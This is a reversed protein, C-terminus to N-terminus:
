KLDQNFFQLWSLLVSHPLDPKEAKSVLYLTHKKGDTVPTLHATLQESKVTKGFGGTVQSGETKFVGVLKGTPDDLRLEFTYPSLYETTWEKGLTAKTISGLDLNEMAIWGNIGSAIAFSKGGIKGTEFGERKNVRSLEVKSNRLVVTNNGSLPKINNGGKDSYSASIYLLGADKVPQGLGPMVSGEAPLSQKKETEALSRVWGVIAKVDEEKMSPHGPMAVEGWVGRSGKIIKDSLYSVANPDKQYKRAVDAFSPGISKEDTKHCGKCDMSLMLNKGAVTESIMQHGQLSTKDKGEIYNASVFLDAPDYPKGGDDKDTVKVAYEVKKGPFYFSTNGKINIEVSPAENGAYIEVADSRTINGKDDKVEAYVSYEGVKNITYDLVSDKTEKQQDGLHWTYSLPDNEPDAANIKLKITMPLSGTTKDVSVKEVRPQRNGPNYDIRALGADPNKSFWGSGYELVYINGDPGIEMDVPGNWTTHEMFPEMKDFDGNERLTVVKIWGRIWEYIFLKKNYYDPLRTKSSYLDGYYVPGAMATRGGTGVQPFDKSEGYPYWIFAPQAAPLEALGTNNRSNNVPKNPDFASGPKGAAFDYEHYAYNNGVFYPWGFNGAARAQNIEDYGRPGRTDLSDGNADPGVEGWYLFSNKKDVSIRYPNRNGMVYIEPRTKDTGKPFLNGQPIEYSGDVNMKIRIIKGRLDNTNGAGRRSDYKEFGPRDDLPAFAHLNFPQDPEDFPTSNDGTSVFLIRDPGFAISGGTHCCIERQTPVDLIVKESKPDISDKEFTFRSLRDVSIGTPSYYVYVFHNKDFEPDAQIGLLGMEVNVGPTEAKFYVNLFGAQKVSGTEHKYLMLEGRRQTVLIDLNPLITMETPEFFTGQVLQTKTFRNEELVRLTTAKGYDPNKNEGIAYQIGGLLHKLFLPDNYSEDVHGLATYFARGGDFEHYWAMPHHKGNTGGQYSQEDIEMVVHLSSDLKKFNYWEDKRKWSAPLHATSSNSSDIVHLVAEQIQPHGNFYAGVLRGYWGWDYETDTAAHVGVFGGGSQIYREFDAEQYNNLVNGTTSLFVVASYKKLSDENFVDASSTTDVDFGNEQGLKIIALEGKPISAHYFGATKAFVLVRPKASRKNSCASLLLLCLLTALISRASPMNM